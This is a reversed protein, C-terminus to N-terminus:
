KSASVIIKKTLMRDEKIKLRFFYVGENFDTADITTSQTSIEQTYIKHGISSFIELQIPYDIESNNLHVYVENTTPNPFLQFDNETILGEQDDVNTTLCTSILSTGDLNWDTSIPICLHDLLTPLVDTLRPTSTYDYAVIVEPNAWIAGNISGNNENISYDIAELNGIGENMM